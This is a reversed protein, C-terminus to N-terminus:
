DDSEGLFGSNGVRLAEDVEIGIPNKLEGVEDWNNEPSSARLPLKWGQLAM